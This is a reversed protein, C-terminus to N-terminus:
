VDDASLWQKAVAASRAALTAYKLL